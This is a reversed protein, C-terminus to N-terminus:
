QHVYYRNKGGKKAVYMAEDANKILRGAETLDSESVGTRDIGDSYAVGISCGIKLDEGNFLYTQRISDCITQAKREVAVRDTVGDLIVTFEDGGIRAVMDGSRVLRQLRGAAEVLVFDGADHGVNDNVAKFGDLDIFLLAFLKGDSPQQSFLDELTSEFYGRNPIKTLDDHNAKHRIETEVRRRDEIETMLRRNRLNLFIVLVAIALGVEIAVIITNEASEIQKALEINSEKIRQQQLAVLAELEATLEKLAPSIDNHMLQRDSRWADSAHISLVEALYKQYIFFMQSFESLLEQQEEDFDDIKAQLDNISQDVGKLFLEIEGLAAANRFALYNRVQSIVMIWNYRLQGILRLQMSNGEEEILELLDNIIQNMAIGSPELDYSAIGIAPMNKNIDEALEFMRDNHKIIGDVLVRIKNLQDADEMEKNQDTLEVLRILSANIDALKKQYLELNYQDQEIMYNGLVSLSHYFHRTLQMASLMKPQYQSTVKELKKQTNSFSVLSILAITILMVAFLSVVVAAKQRASYKQNPAQAM